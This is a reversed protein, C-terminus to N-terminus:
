THQQSPNMEQFTRFVEIHTDINRDYMHLNNKSINLIHYKELTDVLICLVFLCFMGYQSCHGYILVLFLFNYNLISLGCILCSVYQPVIVSVSSVIPVCSYLFCKVVNSSDLPVVRDHWYIWIGISTKTCMCLCM